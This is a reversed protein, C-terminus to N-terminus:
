KASIVWWIPINSAKLIPYGWIFTFIILVPIGLNLRSIDSVTRLEKMWYDERDIQKKKAEKRVKNNCIVTEMFFRSIWVLELVHSSFINSLMNAHRQRAIYTWANTCVYPLKELADPTVLRVYRVCLCQKRVVLIKMFFAAMSRTIIKWTHWTVTYVNSMRDKLEWWKTKMYFFSM